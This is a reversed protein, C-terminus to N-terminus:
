KEIGEAKEGSKVAGPTVVKTEEPKSCGMMPLLIASAVLLLLFTRIM